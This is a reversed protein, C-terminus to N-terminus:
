EYNIRNFVSRQLKSFNNWLDSISFLAIFKPECIYSVILCRASYDPVLPSVLYLRSFFKGRKM